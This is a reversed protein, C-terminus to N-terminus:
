QLGVLDLKHTEWLPEVTLQVQKLKFKKRIANAFPMHLKTQVLIVFAKVQLPTLNQGLDIQEAMRRVPPFFFLFIFYLFYSYFCLCSLEIYKYIMKCKSLQSPVVESKNLIALAKQASLQHFEASHIYLTYYSYFLAFKHDSAKQRLHLCTYQIVNSVTLASQQRKTTQQGRTAQGCHISHAM